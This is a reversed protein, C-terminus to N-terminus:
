ERGLMHGFRARKTELYSDNVGNADFEHQVRGVVRVGCAEM